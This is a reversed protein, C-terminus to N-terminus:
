GDPLPRSLPPRCVFAFVIHVPLPFLQIKNLCLLFLRTFPPAPVNAVTRTLASCLWNDNLLSFFDCGERLIESLLTPAIPGSFM